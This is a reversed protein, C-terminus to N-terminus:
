QLRYVHLASHPYEPDNDQILRSELQHLDESTCENKRVHCLMEAFKKDGRQRMIEDLEIMQFEDIWVPSGHLRADM